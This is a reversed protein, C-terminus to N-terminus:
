KTECDAHNHFLHGYQSWEPEPKACIAQKSIMQYFNQPEAIGELHMRVFYNCLDSIQIGLCDSSDAFFMDDHAHWLRNRAIEFFPRKTRLSRYTSKYDAKLAKDSCDDLICLYTDEWNLLVGANVDRGFSHNARAWNEIGLLCMHFAAHLPKMISFPSSAMKKRDVAAYVFPLNESGVAQLLVQIATFRKTEEIGAFVETGKYLHCAHFEKFETARETPLIQQIATEHLSSIYGFKGAPVILAGFMAVSSHGSTGTEDLYALHVFARELAPSNMARGREPL